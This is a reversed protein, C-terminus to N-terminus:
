NWIFKLKNLNQESQSYAKQQNEQQLTSPFIPQKLYADLLAFEEQTLRKDKPGAILEDIFEELHSKQGGFKCFDEKIVRQIDQNMLDTAERWAEIHDKSPRTENAWNVKELEDLLVLLWRAWRQINPNMTNCCFFSFITHPEVGYGSIAGFDINKTETPVVPQLLWKLVQGNSIIFHKNVPFTPQLLHQLEDAIINAHHSITELHKKVAELAKLQEDNSNSKEM